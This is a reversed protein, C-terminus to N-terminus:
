KTACSFGASNLRASSLMTLPNSLADGFFYRSDGPGTPAPGPNQTSTAPLTPISGLCANLCFPSGNRMAATIMSDM